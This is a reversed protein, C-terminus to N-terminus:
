KEDLRVVKISKGDPSILRVRRGNPMGFLLMWYKGSLLEQFAEDLTDFYREEGNDQGFEDLGRLCYENKM